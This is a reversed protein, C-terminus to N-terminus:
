IRCSEPAVAPFGAFAPARLKLGETWESFEVTVPIQPEVWLTRAQVARDLSPPPFFPAHEQRIRELYRLLEKKEKEPLAAGVRGLYALRGDVYAGVLLSALEGDRVTYGGIVCNQRRRCKVKTWYRSKRGPLYPSDIKKVVIGELGQERVATLLACPDSFNKVLQVAGEPKCIGALAEQRELWPYPMMNEKGAWLLDFVMYTAPWQRALHWTDARPGALDRRLTAAFTPVGDPGTAVMEGDLIVTKEKLAHALGAMEPYLRTHDRLKRNILRVRGEEVYALMRVGDWKVQAAYGPGTPIQPSAVPDMPIIDGPLM